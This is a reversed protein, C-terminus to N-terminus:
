VDSKFKIQNFVFVQDIRDNDASLPVYLIRIKVFDKNPSLANATVVIPERVAVCHRCSQMIRELVIPNKDKFDKYNKIRGYFDDLRTGQLTVHFDDVIGVSDYVLKFLAVEPLYEKLELPDIDSRAPFRRGATKSDFYDLISSIRENRDRWVAANDISFDKYNSARKLSLM